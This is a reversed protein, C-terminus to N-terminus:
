IAHLAEREEQTAGAASDPVPQQCFQELAINAYYQLRQIRRDAIGELLHLLLLITLSVALGVGTTIMAEWIGGALAQADVRGGAQEIVMFAKIMGLITGFLGLLPATNGLIHLTRFGRENRQREKNGIRSAAQTLINIDASGTNHLTTLLRTEACQRHQKIVHNASLPKGMSGNLSTQLQAELDRAPRTQLAFFVLRELILTMAIMTYGALIWVVVGGRLLIEEITVILKKRKNPSM